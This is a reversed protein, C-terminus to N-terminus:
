KVQQGKVFQFDFLAPKIDELKKGKFQGSFKDMSDLMSLYTQVGAMWGDSMETTYVITSRKVADAPIGMWDGSIAAVEEKNKNCWDCSKTMLVALANFIEPHDSIMNKRAAMVCCPFDKWRGAPPIDRLDLAIEGVEKVEAVEPFPAPGVWCDVEKSVLAPILNSTTKLDVLLVDANFDNADQTVKLGAELFAGEIVMKPASDPSHYGVKLPQKMEKIRAMVADWGKVNSGKPFVLGMGDVHTASIVQIPTGRDIGTMMATISGLAIDLREQAFLTTTESGSKNVIADIRAIAKGDAVLEYKEKPVLPKLYVGMDKFAEGKSM